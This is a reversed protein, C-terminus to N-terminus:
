ANEKVGNEYRGRRKKEIGMVGGNRQVRRYGGGHESEKSRGDVARMIVESSHVGGFARQVAGDLGAGHGEGRREHGGGARRRRGAGVGSTQTSRPVKRHVALKIDAEGNGEGTEQDGELVFCSQNCREAASGGPRSPAGGEVALDDVSLHRLRRRLPPLRRPPARCPRRPRPSIRSDPPAAPSRRPVRPHNEPSGLQRLAM